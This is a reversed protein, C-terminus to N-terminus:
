TPTSLPGGNQGQFLPPDKLSRASGMWAWTLLAQSISVQEWTLSSFCAPSGAHSLAAGVHLLAPKGSVFTSTGPTSLHAAPAQQSELQFNLTLSLLCSLNLTLSHSVILNLPDTPMLPSVLPTHVQPLSVRPAHIHPSM